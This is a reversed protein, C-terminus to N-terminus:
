KIGSFSSSLKFHQDFIKDFHHIYTKQFKTLHCLFSNNWYCNDSIYYLHQLFSFFCILLHHFSISQAPTWCLKSNFSLFCFLYISLSVHIICFPDVFLFFSIFFTFTLIHIMHPNKVIWIYNSPKIKPEHWTQSYSVWFVNTVKFPTLLPVFIIM